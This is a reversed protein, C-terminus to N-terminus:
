KVKLKHHSFRTVCVKMADKAIKNEEHDHAVGNVYQEVEEWDNVVKLLYSAYEVM